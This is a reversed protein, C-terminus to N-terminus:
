RITVIARMPTLSSKEIFYEDRGFVEKFAVAEGPSELWTLEDMLLVSGSVLHPKIAELAAKTPQYLGMDLYALAVIAEPHQSFYNSASTTVDGEVIEHQGRIHGLVNNGEHVALLERLHEAYDITTRYSNSEFIQSSQDISSHGEYGDFTDFGIVKRTKNFPEYIARLNEFLILNQGWRTGFEMICGPIRLIRRYLDDLVLIKVLASSRMYMAFSMMLEDSPIPTNKFLTSLQERFKIQDNSAYSEQQSQGKFM